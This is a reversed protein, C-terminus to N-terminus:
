MLMGGTLTIMLMIAHLVGRVEISKKDVLSEPYTAFIFICVSSFWVLGAILAPLVASATLPALQSDVVVRYLLVISSFHVVAYISEMSLARRWEFVGLPFILNRFGPFQVARSGYLLLHGFASGVIIFCGALWHGPLVISAHALREYLLPFVVLPITMTLSLVVASWGQPLSTGGGGRFHWDFLREAALWLLGHAIAVAIGLFLVAQVRPLGSLSSLTRLPVNLRSFFDIGTALLAVISCISGWLNVNRERIVPGRPVSHAPPRASNTDVPVSLIGQLAFTLDRASQYRRSPDKELCRAVVRDLGQPILKGSDAISPPQNELIATMTQAPTERAFAQRGVIMEYLVCGLSFIDSQADARRGRVQEPAMYGVTGMFINPDTETPASSQNPVPNASKRRALGFDLIKVPGDVVLFINEPKLDRHIIGKFHAASVGEAIAKAIETARQWPIAGLQLRDRLTEGELLETVVYATGQDSGVDYIALINIHSLADVARAEGQFRALAQPDKSLREPLVKIAVDRNLRPDHARYVEGMGGKGVLALIHYPGLRSGPQLLM